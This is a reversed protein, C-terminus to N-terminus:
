YTISSVDVWSRRALPRAKTLATNNIVAREVACTSFVIDATGLVTNDDLSANAAVVGGHFHQTGGGGQTSLTGKIIVPGYFEFQGTVKLSGEVLLIGQGRGGSFNWTTNPNNLYIIPFYNFCPHTNLLPEGWNPMTSSGAYNCAAGTLSPGPQAPVTTYIKEAVSKLDDFTMDGFVLLSDSTMNSKQSLDTAGFLQNQRINAENGNFNIKSTDNMMVGPKNTGGAAGCLGPWMTPDTDRGDIIASGGFNLTGVTTLAAPPEMNPTVVRAIMGVQRTAGSMLPGGSTVTGTSTLFYLKSTMPMVTVSWTGDTGTGTATATTSWAAASSYTSQWNALTSYIGREALYFAAQANQGAVGIRTEQRAMYFGGTVLVGVVVLAFVAVPLAFGRSGRMTEDTRM